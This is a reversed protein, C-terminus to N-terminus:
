FILIILLWTLALDVFTQVKKVVDTMPQKYGLCPRKDGAQPVIESQTRFLRKNVNNVAFSSNAVVSFSQSKPLRNPSLLRRHKEQRNESDEVPSASRKKRQAEDPSFLRRPLNERTLPEKPAASPESLKESSNVFLARKTSARSPKPSLEPHQREASRLSKKKKASTRKIPSKGNLTKSYLKRYSFKSIFKM